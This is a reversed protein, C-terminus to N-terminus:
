KGKRKLGLCSITRACIGPALWHLSAQVTRTCMHTCVFHTRACPKCANRDAEQKLSRHLCVCPCVCVPRYPNHSLNKPQWELLSPLLLALSSFLLSCSISLLCATFYGYTCMLQFYVKKKKKKTMVTSLPLGLIQSSQILNSWLLIKSYLGLWHFFVLSPGWLYSSWHCSMDINFLLSSLPLLPLLPFPHSFPQHDQSQNM